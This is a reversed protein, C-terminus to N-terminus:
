SVSRATEPMAGAGRRELLRAVSVCAVIAVAFAPITLHAAVMGVADAISGLAIPSLLLATGAFLGSRVGASAAQAGAAGLAFGLSLPYLLSAALGIIFLGVVGALPTAIGWYLAFGPVVLALSALYLNFPAVKSVLFSGGLRGALMAASFAAASAAAGSRSLGVVNELYTPCWLLTSMELAVGLSLTVLYAWSALPLGLSSGHQRAPPEPVARRGLTLVIVVGLAAGLLLATRWNFGTAVAAGVALAAVIGFVYTVAGCEAFAQDRGAPHLQALLGAVIGPLMAGTLGVLLCSGISVAPADAVGLLGMGVITGGVAVVFTRRRGFRTVVQGTVIGSVMMGIAIASMHLSVVRYSLDMEDRLFPIINGQISLSFQFFGSLLYGYWTLPTRTLRMPAM